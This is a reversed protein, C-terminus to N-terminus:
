FWNEGSLVVSLPNHSMTIITERVEKVNMCYEGLEEGLRPPIDVQVTPLLVVYYETPVRYQYTGLLSYSQRICQTDISRPM